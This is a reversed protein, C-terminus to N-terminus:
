EFSEGKQKAKVPFFTGKGDPSLMTTVRNPKEETKEKLIYWRRREKKNMTKIVNYFRLTVCCKIFQKLTINPIYIYMCIYVYVVEDYVIATKM